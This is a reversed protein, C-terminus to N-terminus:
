RGDRLSRLGKRAAGVLGGSRRRVTYTFVGADPETAASPEAEAAPAPEPLAEFLSGDAARQADDRAPAASPMATTTVAAASVAPPGPAVVKDGPSVDLVTSGLSSDAAEADGRESTQPDSRDSAGDLSRKAPAPAYARNGMLTLAILTGGALFLLPMLPASWGKDTTDIAGATTGRDGDHPSAGDESSSSATVAEVRILRGQGGGLDSTPRLRPM